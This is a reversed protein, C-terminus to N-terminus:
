YWTGDIKANFAGISTTPFRYGVSVDAGRIRM